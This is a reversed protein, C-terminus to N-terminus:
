SKITEEISIVKTAIKKCVDTIDKCLGILNNHKFILEDIQEQQKNITSELKDICTGLYYCMIVTGIWTIGILIEM